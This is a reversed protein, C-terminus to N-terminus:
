GRAPLPAAGAEERVLDGIRRTLKLVREVQSPAHTALGCAPTVLAQARLRALDCGTRALEFWLSTLRRWLSEEREGIPGDTPVVGWAVWGGREVFADLGGADDVVERRVPVSLVDPGAQLAIRLDGQGCCHVGTVVEPGLTALAASVLDITEEREFPFEARTAASLGPEDLVVVLRTGPLREGARRVVARGVSMVAAGAAGFALRPPAGGAVLALALTIPGTLQLKVTACRRGAAEDLFAALGVWAREDLQRVGPSPDLRRPDILLSGDNRVKVGPMGAAVQAIMGEAPSRRPLQPAAPMEPLLQLAVRAAEGADTHPLSGVGTPTGAVLHVHSM